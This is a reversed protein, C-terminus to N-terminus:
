MIYLNSDHPVDSVLNPLINHFDCLLLCLDGYVRFSGRHSESIWIEVLSSKGTARATVSRALLKHFPTRESAPFSSVDVEGESPGSAADLLPRLM